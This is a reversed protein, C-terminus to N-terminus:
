ALRGESPRHSDRDDPKRGLLPVFLHTTLAAVADPNPDDPDVMLGYALLEKENRFKIAM